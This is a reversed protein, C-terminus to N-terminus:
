RTVETLLADFATLDVRPEHLQPIAPKEPSVLDKVADPHPVQGQDLLLCLASEVDSEMTSAALYLIRLYAADAKIGAHHAELAEYARRFALTPFLDDRYPYRAFAGPKRVLSWIVHRYNIAHRSRGVLRPATWVMANAYWVELYSEYVRVKVHHHKLRPPVSYLNEKVSITAHSSVSVHGLEVFDPLRETAVPRMVALEENLRKTRRRNERDLMTGLWHTFQAADDFDRSGRLRLHQDLFRKLAGNHAEVAGNQEKKGVQTTRPKMGLHEMLDLYDQNFPRKGDSDGVRHTAGTSNDTQNWEPVKGLRYVAEQLGLRLSLISESQCETAWRWGSYVLVVNCLLPKFPKTALTMGLEGTHTFDTQSAEGPRHRQPFFLEHGADDGSLARWRRIQRQLTRLQGPEFRDPHKEVLWEFITRAQLGADGRLLCEVEPWVVRFPDERTRWIRPQKLESPVRGVRQYKAGTQRTMGAKASAVGLEVGRALEKMLIRVQENTVTM